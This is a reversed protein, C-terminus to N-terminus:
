GELYQGSDHQQMIAAKIVKTKFGEVVVFDLNKKVACFYFNHLSIKGKWWCFFQAM